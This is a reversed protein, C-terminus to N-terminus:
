NIHICVILKRWHYNSSVLFFHIYKKEIEVMEYSQHRLYNYREEPFVPVREDQVTLPMAAAIMNM